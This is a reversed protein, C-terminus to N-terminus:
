AQLTALDAQKSTKPIRQCRKIVASNPDLLTEQFQLPEGAGAGTPIQRDKNSTRMIASLVVNGRSSRIRHAAIAPIM